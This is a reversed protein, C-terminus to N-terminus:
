HISLLHALLAFVAPPVPRFRGPLGHPIFLPLIGASVALLIGFGGVEESVECPVYCHLPVLLVSLASLAYAMREASFGRTTFKLDAPVIM